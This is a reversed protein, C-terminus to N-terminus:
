RWKDDLLRHTYKKADVGVYDAVKQGKGKLRWNYTVLGELGVPGRAHIKNTSIGVEAGLGYRFGDAFRTSANHMVSSSDVREMFDKAAKKDETVIADTHGSGYTNIHDVANDLNPVIKISLVRSNYETSWDDAEAHAVDIVDLTRPCGRLNVNRAELEKQIVPLLEEAVSDDLLLTEVANCVAPYQTKADITLDVAMDHDAKEHIYLHCVGDSHGLVPINTNEKVYQVFRNSGRPIVLSIYEDLELMESVEGRTEMLQICDVPLSTEGLSDRMIESLKRNSHLAESGGKMLVANGSKLSLSGVQPVVDPRSEFVVGLVGIPVTVKYLTLDEDLERCLLTKGTPDELEAVSELSEVISDIKSEKLKLRDLLPKELDDIEAQEVDKQNAKLIEDRRENVAEAMKKLAINKEDTSINSLKLSAKRAKRAKDTMSM